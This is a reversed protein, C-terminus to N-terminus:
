KENTITVSNGDLKTFTISFKENYTKAKDQLYSIAMAEGLLLSCDAWIGNGSIYLNAAGACAQRRADILLVEEARRLDTHHVHADRGARDGGLVAVGSGM